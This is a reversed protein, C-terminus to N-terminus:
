LRGPAKTGPFGNLLGSLKRVECNSMNETVFIQSRSRPRVPVQKTIKYSHVSLPSPGSAALLEAAYFQIFKRNKRHFRQERKETVLM